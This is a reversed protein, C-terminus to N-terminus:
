GPRSTDIIPDIDGSAIRATRCIAHPLDCATSRMRYLTSSRDLVNQEFARQVTQWLGDSLAECFVLLSREHRWSSVFVQQQETGIVTTRRPQSQRQSLQGLAEINENAAACATGAVAITRVVHIGRQPKLHGDLEPEVIKPRRQTRDLRLGPPLSATATTREIDIHDGLATVTRHDFDVFGVVQKAIVRARQQVRDTDVIQISRM